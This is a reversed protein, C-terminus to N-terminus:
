DKMAPAVTSKKVNLKKWLLLGSKQQSPIPNAFVESTIKSSKPPTSPLSFEGQNAMEERRSLRAEKALKRNEAYQEIAQGLVFPFRYIFLFLGSIGWIFFVVIASG